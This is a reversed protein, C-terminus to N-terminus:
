SRPTRKLGGVKVCYADENLREFTITMKFLTLTARLVEKDSKLSTYIDHTPPVVDGGDEAVRCKKIKGCAKAWESPTFEPVM